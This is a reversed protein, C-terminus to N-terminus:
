FGYLVTGIGHIGCRVDCFHTHEPFVVIECQLGVVACHPLAVSCWGDCSM